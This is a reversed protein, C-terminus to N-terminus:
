SELGQLALKVSNISYKAGDPTCVLGSGNIFLKAARHYSARGEKRCNNICELAYLYLGEDNSIWLAVNWANWSPHGNYPKSAM